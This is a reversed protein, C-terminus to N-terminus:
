MLEPHGSGNHDEPTLNLAAIIEHPSRALRPQHDLIAQQAATLQFVHVAWDAKVILLAGARIVADKTPQLAVLVPSLNQLLTATVAADQALVLRTDAMHAAVLAAERAPPSSLAEKITAMMRRFWSGILPDDRDEIRLGATALLAEVATEVQDHIGEDSVYITIPMMSASAEEGARAARAPQPDPGAAGKLWLFDDASGDDPDLYPTTWPLQPLETLLNKLLFPDNAAARSALKETSKGNAHGWITVDGHLHRANMWSPLAHSLRTVDSGASVRVLLRFSGLLDDYGELAVEFTGSLGPYENLWATLDPALGTGTGGFYGSIDLRVEIDFIDIDV